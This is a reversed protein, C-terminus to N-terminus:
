SMKSMLKDIGNSIIVNHLINFIITLVEIVDNQYMYKELITVCEHYLYLGVFSGMVVYFSHIIYNSMRNFNIDYKLVMNHLNIFNVISHM